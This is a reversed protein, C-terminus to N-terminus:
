IEMCLDPKVTSKQRKGEIILLYYYQLRLRANVPKKLQTGWTESIQM